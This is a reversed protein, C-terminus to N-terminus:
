AKEVLDSASLRFKDATSESVEYIWSGHLDNFKNIEDGRALIESKEKVEEEDADLTIQVQPTRHFGQIRLYHKDGSKAVDVIYGSDDQLDFTVEHTFALNQVEPANALYHKTFRLYSLAGKVKNVEATKEKMGAPVDLLALSGDRDEFRFGDGEIAKLDAQKVDVIDKNLFDDADTSFYVRSSTLYITSKDVNVRRVYNGGDEFSKGVLFHVMEKGSADKFTVAITGEEEGTLELEKELSEGRGVEKELSLGLVDKVFRNVADNKAPYGGQDVLVFEDGQRELQTTEEGKAIVIDAIEDPNLNPLFKQGREFREARQVSDRYSLASILLLAAAIAALITNTKKV